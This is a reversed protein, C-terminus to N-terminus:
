PSIRFVSSIVAELNKKILVDYLLFKETVSAKAVLALLMGPPPGNGQLHLQGLFVLIGMRANKGYFDSLLTTALYCPLTLPSYELATFLSSLYSSLAQDKRISINFSVETFPKEGENM